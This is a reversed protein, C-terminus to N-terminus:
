TTSRGFVLEFASKAAAFGFGRRALYNYAKRRATELEFETWARRRQELATVARETEDGGGLLTEAASEALERAVGRKQLYASVYAKGCPKRDVLSRGVVQAYRADDVAGMRRYRRVVDHVLDKDYGRKRLKRGLERESHERGALMRAATQECSYRQAEEELRSFQAPTLIVGPQLNRSRAAEATITLPDNQGEITIRASDGRIRIDKIRIRETM